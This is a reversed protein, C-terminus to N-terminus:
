VGRPIFKNEAFSYSFNLRVTKQSDLPKLSIFVVISSKSTPVIDVQFESAGLLGDRRLESMIMTKIRGANEATNPQGFFEQLRSGEEPNLIWDGKTWQLRNLVRQVLNRYPQNKTTLLRPGDLVFDGEQSWFLDHKREWM